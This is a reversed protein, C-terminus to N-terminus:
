FDGYDVQLCITPNEHGFTHRVMDVVQQRDDIWSEVFYKGVLHAEILERKIISDKRGDGASRMHLESMPVDNVQLWTMTEEYCVDERGSFIIVKVGRKAYARAMEAINENLLDEGVLTYTYPNREGINALTGDMDFVVARPLAPDQDIPPFASPPLELAGSFLGEISERSNFRQHMRKIVEEGVSKERAADRRILEALPVDFDEVRASYGHKNALRILDKVGRSRLNTDSVIISKEAKIAGDIIARHIRTVMDEQEKSGLLPFGLMMRISDRNAEIREGQREAVWNQAFTSKGSAPTGRTIIMEAM